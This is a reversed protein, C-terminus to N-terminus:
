PLEHRLVARPMLEAEGAFRGLGLASIMAGQVNSYLLDLPARYTELILRARNSHETTLEIRASAARLYLELSDNFRGPFLFSYTASVRRVSEVQEQAREADYQDSVLNLQLSALAPGLSEWLELRKQMVATLRALNVTDRAAAQERRIADNRLALDRADSDRRIADDREEAARRLADDRSFAEKRVREDAIRVAERDRAQEQAASAAAQRQRGEAQRASQQSLISGMILVAIPTASSMVLRAVELSNWVPKGRGNDVASRGKSAGPKPSSSL